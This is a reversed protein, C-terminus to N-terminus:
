KGHTVKIFKCNKANIEAYPVGGLQNKDIIGTVVWITDNILKAVFPKKKNVANGYIEFWKKEAHKIADISNNICYNKNANIVEQKSKCTSM